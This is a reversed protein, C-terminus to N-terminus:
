FIGLFDSRPKRKSFVGFQDILRGESAFGPDLKASLVKTGGIMYLPKVGVSVGDPSQPCFSRM